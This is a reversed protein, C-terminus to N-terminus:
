PAPPQLLTQGWLLDYWLIKIVLNIIKSVIKCDFYKSIIIRPVFYGVDACAVGAYSKRSIGNDSLSM